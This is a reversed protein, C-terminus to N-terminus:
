MLLVFSQDSVTYLVAENRHAQKLSAYMVRSKVLMLDIGTSQCEKSM